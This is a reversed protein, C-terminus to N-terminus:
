GRNIGLGNDLSTKKLLILPYVETKPTKKDVWSCTAQGDKISSVAMMLDPNARHFVMDGEKIENLDKDM